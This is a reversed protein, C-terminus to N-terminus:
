ACSESAKVLRRAADLALFGKCLQSKSPTPPHPFCPPIPPRLPLSLHRSPPLSPIFCALCASSPPVFSCRLTARETCPNRAQLSISSAAAAAAVKLAAGALISQGARFPSWSGHCHRDQSGAAHPFRFPFHLVMMADVRVRYSDHEGRRMEELHFLPMDSRDARADRRITSTTLLSSWVM